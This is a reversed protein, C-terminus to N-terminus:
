VSGMLTSISKNNQNDSKQRGISNLAYFCSEVARKAGADNGGGGGGPVTHLHAIAKNQKDFAYFVAM